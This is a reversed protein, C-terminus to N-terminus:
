EESREDGSVSAQHLTDTARVSYKSMTQVRSIARSILDLIRQPHAVSKIITYRSGTYLATINIDGLSFFTPIVGKCDYAIETITELQYENVHKKIISRRDIKIIRRSTLIVLTGIWQSLITAIFISDLALLLLFFIVGKAGLSLLPFVFLCLVILACIFPSLALLALIAHSRFTGVIEEESSLNIIEHFFPM